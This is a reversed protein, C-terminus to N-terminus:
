INKWTKYRLVDNISTTTVNPHEQQIEKRTKIGHEFDYRMQIVEEKTLKARGNNEGSHMISSQFHRNEDTFVEPMVLKYRNGYYINWFTLEDPYLEKYENEYVERWPIKAAYQKRLKVVQEYTLKNGSSFQNSFESNYPYPDVTPEINKYTKNWYVKKFANYTLKDIFDEYLVYIPQNRHSKIFRVEDETLHANNNDRGYKPPVNFHYKGGWSVNYGKGTSVHTELKKIYEQEYADIEEEPINDLLVEFTFNESGYKKIAKAIVMDKDQAKKHADWRKKPNNTIGVYKKNNILNTIVYLYM